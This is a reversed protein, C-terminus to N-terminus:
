HVEAHLLSAQYSLAKGQCTALHLDSASFLPDSVGRSQGSASTGSM